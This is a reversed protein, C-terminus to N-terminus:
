AAARAALWEVLDCARFGLKRKGLRLPKPLDGERYLRRTQMVSLGIFDATQKVDLVRHRALEYPLAGLSDHAQTSSHTNSIPAHM